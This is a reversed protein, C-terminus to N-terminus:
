NALASNPIYRTQILGMKEVRTIYETYREEPLLYVNKGAGRGPLNLCTFQKTRLKSKIILQVPAKGKNTIEIM